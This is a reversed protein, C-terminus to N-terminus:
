VIPNGFRDLMNFGDFTFDIDEELSDSDVDLKAIVVSDINCNYLVSTQKGITSGPDNNVVTITFNTDQGTNAYKLAMERFASTVYYLTMSGSGSWGITKHQTARKGLTKVEAKQKEMIGELSKIYFMDVVQGDIIATAKGESGSITDGARLM